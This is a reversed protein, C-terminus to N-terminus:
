MVCMKRQPLKFSLVVAYEEFTDVEINKQRMGLGKLYLKVETLQTM